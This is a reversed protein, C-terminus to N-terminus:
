RGSLMDDLEGQLTPLVTEEICDDTPPGDPHDDGGLVHMLDNRRAIIWRNRASADPGVEFRGADLYLVADHEPPTDILRRIDHVTLQLPTSDTM